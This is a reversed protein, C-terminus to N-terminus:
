LEKIGYEASIQDFSSQDIEAGQVGIFDKRLDTIDFGTVVNTEADFEAVEWVGNVIDFQIKRLAFRGKEIAQGM